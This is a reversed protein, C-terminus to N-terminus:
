NNVVKQKVVVALIKPPTRVTVFVLAVLCTTDDVAFHGCVRIYFM